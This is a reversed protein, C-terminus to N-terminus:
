AFVGSLSIALAFLAAVYSLFAAYLAVTSVGSHIWQRWSMVRENPPLQNQYLPTFKLGRFLAEAFMGVVITSMMVIALALVLLGTDLHQIMAITDSHGADHIVAFQIVPVALFISHFFTLNFAQQRYKEARSAPLRLVTPMALSLVTSLATGILVASVILVTLAIKSVLTRYASAPYSVQLLLLAILSLVGWFQTEVYSWPLKNRAAFSARDFSHVAAKYLGFSVLSATVAPLPSVHLLLLGAFLYGGALLALPGYTAALIARHLALERRPISHTLAFTEM